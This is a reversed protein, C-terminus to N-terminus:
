RRKMEGPVWTLIGTKNVTLTGSFQRDEEPAVPRNERALVLRYDVTFPYEGSVEEDLRIDLVEARQVRGEGDFLFPYEAAPVEAFEEPCSVTFLNRLYAEAQKSPSLSWVAFSLFAAFFVCASLLLPLNREKGMEPAPLSRTKM